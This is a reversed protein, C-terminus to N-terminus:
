ISSLSILRYQQDISELYPLEFFGALILKNTYVADNVEVLLYDLKFQQKINLMKEKSPSSYFNNSIESRKKCENAFPGSCTSIVKWQQNANIEGSGSFIYAGTLSPIYRNVISGDRSMIVVDKQDSIISRILSFLPNLSTIRNSVDKNYLTNFKIKPSMSSLFLLFLCTLLIFRCRYSSKMLSFGLLNASILSLVIYATEAFYRHYLVWLKTFYFVVSSFLVLAALILPYIKSNSILSLGKPLFMFSLFSIIGIPMVVSIAIENFIMFTLPNYINMIRWIIVIGLLSTLSIAYISVEDLADNRFRTPFSIIKLKLPSPMFKRWFFMSILSGTFLTIAHLGIEPHTTLTICVLITSTILYLKKQENLYKTLTLLFISFIAYAFLRISPDPVTLQNLPLVLFISIISSIRSNLAIYSFVSFFIIFITSLVPIYYRWTTVLGVKKQISALIPYSISLYFNKGEYFYPNQGISKGQSLRLAMASHYYIDGGAPLQDNPSTSINTFFTLITFALVILIWMPMGIDKTSTHLNYKIPYDNRSISAALCGWYSLILSIGVWFISQLASTSDSIFSNRFIYIITSLALAYTTPFLLESYHSRKIRTAVISFVFGSVFPLLYVLLVGWFTPYYLERFPLSSLIKDIM